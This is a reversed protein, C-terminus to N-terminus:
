KPIPGLSTLKCYHKAIQRARCGKRSTEIRFIQSLHHESIVGADSVDNAPVLALDGAVHPIAHESIEAVGVRILIVGRLCRTRSESQDVGDGVEPSVN